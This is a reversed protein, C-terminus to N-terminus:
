RRKERERSRFVISIPTGLFGYQDRIRNELYRGYSWHVMEHDNAFFLFVPPAVQPQTAYYIRLHAGKKTATPPHNMVAARLLNNLESTPVRRNRAEEVELALPLIKHVNRGTLASIFLLPAYDIFSFAERVQDTYENFTYTDKAVSDWKNVLIVVGKKADLIMGAIHTDQATVGETADILLLAVDCRDIARLTRM